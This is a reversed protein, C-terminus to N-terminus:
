CKHQSYYLSQEGEGCLVYRSVIMVSASLANNGFGGERFVFDSDM